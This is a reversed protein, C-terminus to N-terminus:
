TKGQQLLSHQRLAWGLILLSISALPWSGFRLYPTLGQMPTVQGALIAVEFQPAQQVIRGKPDILASVGNNTARIMWRGAELARMQAMQLHQLPGISSGFWTDNSITLLIDSQAALRTAFEPYVVEYCIYPAIRYGKATLPAQAAPGPAFDSMPLDFFDIIGRLTNQLPVYEGFPVLKHKLYTGSADGMSIIANHFRQQGADGTQRLPIGTILASNRQRAFADLNDLYRTANHKFLPIANEPWIILDAQPASWSLQQYLLLQNSIHEPDWKLNQEINGQIAAVSLPAGAPRTWQVPQLVGALLWVPILLFAHRKWQQRARPCALLNALLASSLALVFSVLWVGGLPALSSLPGHLQSYGTYLWPFGTLFWGRFAEGTVWLAAFALANSLNYQPQRFFRAWCWAFLALFLALGAVFLLTLLAALIPPASGYEHISVYVWSAGSAFLGAGFLWGRLVAHAAPLQQLLIYFLAIALLALPWLDFPALSGTVLTGAVLALLNGRWGCALLTAAKFPM